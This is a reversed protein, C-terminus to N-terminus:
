FVNNNNKVWKKKKCTSKKCTSFANKIKEHSENRKVQPEM